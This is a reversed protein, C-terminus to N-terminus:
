QLVSLQCTRQRGRSSQTGFSISTQWLSNEQSPNPCVSLTLTHPESSDGFGDIVNSDPDIRLVSSPPRDTAGSSQFFVLFNQRLVVLRDQWTKSSRDLIRLEGEKDVGLGRVSELEMRPLGLAVACTEAHQQHHGPLPAAWDIPHTCIRSTVDSMFHLVHPPALLVHSYLKGSM